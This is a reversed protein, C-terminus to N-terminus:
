RWRVLGGLVLSYLSGLWLQFEEENVCQLLAREPRCPTAIRFCYRLSLDTAPDVSVIESLPIQDSWEFGPEGPRGKNWDAFLLLKTGSLSAWHKRPHSLFSDDRRFLFTELLCSPEALGPALTRYNPGVTPVTSPFEVKLRELDRDTMGADGVARMMIYWALAYNRMEPYDEQHELVQDALSMSYKREKWGLLELCRSGSPHRLLADYTFENGFSVSHRDATRLLPTLAPLWAPPSWRLRLCKSPNNVVDKMAHLLITYAAKAKKTEHGMEAVLGHLNSTFEVCFSVEPDVESESRPTSVESVTAESQSSPPKSEDPVPDLEPSPPVAEEAQEAADAPPGPQQEVAGSNWQEVIQAEQEPRLQKGEVFNHLQEFWRDM